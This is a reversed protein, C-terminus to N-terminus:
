NANRVVRFGVCYDRGYPGSCSGITNREAVGAGLSDHWSGGRLYRHSGSSWGTSPTTNSISGYWHWDWCWESVNGSMDYLGYGNAKKTRVKRTGTDGTTSDYWTVEGKNDSGAYTYNQGGRAAWEWEAETPLRYGDATFDCTAANWTADDSNPIVGWDAPDTKGNIKYCPTYNRKMSLKNCYVLADYWSVYNVPNNGVADGTLENGDKDHAKAASPDSGILEKYEARTVEHDSMFFSKIELSRGSVFVNSDPTWSETGTISIGPVEVSGYPDSVTDIMTSVVTAPKPPERKDPTQGPAGPNPCGTIGIVAIALAVALIGIKRLAKM